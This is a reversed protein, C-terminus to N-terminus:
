FGPVRCWQWTHSKRSLMQPFPYSLDIYASIKFIHFPNIVKLHCYWVCCLAVLHGGHKAQLLLGAPLTFWSVGSLPRQSTVRDLLWGAKAQKGGLSAPWSRVTRCHCLQYPKGRTVTPSWLAQSFTLWKHQEWFLLGTKNLGRQWRCRLGQMTESVTVLM